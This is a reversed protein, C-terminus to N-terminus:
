QLEAHRDPLPGGAGVCVTWRESFEASVNLISSGLVFVHTKANQM